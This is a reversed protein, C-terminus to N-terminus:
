STILARVYPFEIVTLLEVLTSTNESYMLQFWVNGYTKLSVLYIDVIRQEMIKIQLNTASRHITLEVVLLIYVRILRPKNWCNLDM